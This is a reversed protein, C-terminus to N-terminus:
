NNFNITIQNTKPHAQYTLIYNTTLKNPKLTYNINIKIKKKTLKTHYTNYTKNKYTFPLNTNTKLTNNLLSKTNSTLPFKITTNNLTITIITNIKPQNTNNKTKPTPTKKNNTNFLKFHIKKHNINHQKLIKQINKIIPLPKYLYFNNIKTTNILKNYITTYKNTSIHSNLLPNNLKKHNLIHYIHLQSIHKNKLKKIKKQFIINNIIHNNYFLTFTNIPKQKLITKIISIIPTINSKTTFAIYHKTKTQNPKTTFHSIPTIIKLKNNTKLTKNTYTSFRGEPM